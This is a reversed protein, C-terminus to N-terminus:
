VKCLKECHIAQCKQVQRDNLRHLRQLFFLCLIALIDMPPKAGQHINKIRDNQPLTSKTQVSQRSNSISSSSFPTSKLRNGSPMFNLFLKQSVSWNRSLSRM